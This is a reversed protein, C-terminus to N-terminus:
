LAGVLGNGATPLRAAAYLRVDGLRRSLRLETGIGEDGRPCDGDSGTEFSVVWLPGVLGNGATSCRVARVGLRLESCIKFAAIDLRVTLSLRLEAGSVGVHESGSSWCAVFGDECKRLALRGSPRRPRVFLKPFQDNSGRSVNMSGWARNARSVESKGCVPDHLAEV